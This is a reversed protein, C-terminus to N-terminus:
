CREGKLHYAAQKLRVLAVFRFLTRTVGVTSKNGDNCRASNTTDEGDDGTRVFDFTADIVQGLKVDLLIETKYKLVLEETYHLKTKADNGHSGSSIVGRFALL